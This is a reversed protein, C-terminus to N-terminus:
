QIGSYTKNITNTLVSVISTNLCKENSYMLEDTVICENYIFKLKNTLMGLWKSLNKEVEFQSKSSYM